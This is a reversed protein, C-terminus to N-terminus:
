SKSLMSKIEKAVEISLKSGSTVRDLMSQMGKERATKKAEEGCQGPLLLMTGLAVLVRSIAEPEYKGCGAITGVLDIVRVASSISLSTSTYM